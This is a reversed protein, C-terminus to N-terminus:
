SNGSTVFFEYQGTAGVNSATTFTVTGSDTARKVTIKAGSATTLTTNTVSSLSIVTDKIIHADLLQKLNTAAQLASVTLSRNGMFKVFAADTPVLFTGKFTGGALLGTYANSSSLAGVFVTADVKARLADAITNMAPPILVQDIVHVAARRSGDNKFGAQYSSVITANGSPFVVVTANGSRVLTLKLGRPANPGFELHM